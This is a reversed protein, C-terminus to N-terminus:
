RRLLSNLLYSMNNEFIVAKEDDLTQFDRWPLGTFDAQMDHLYNRAARIYADKCACNYRHNPYELSHKNMARLADEIAMPEQRSTAILIKNTIIEIADKSLLGGDYNDELAKEIVEALNDKSVRSGM